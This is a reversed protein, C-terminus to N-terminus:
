RLLQYAALAIIYAIGTMMAVATNKFLLAPFYFARDRMKAVNPMDNLCAWGNLFNKPKKTKEFLIPLGFICPSVNMSRVSRQKKEAKKFFTSM